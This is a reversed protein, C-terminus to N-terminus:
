SVKTLVLVLALGAVQLYCFVSESKFVVVAAFIFSILM